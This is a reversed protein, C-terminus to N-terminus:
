VGDGGSGENDIGDAFDAPINLIETNWDVSNKTALTGLGEIQDFDHWGKTTDVNVAYVGM